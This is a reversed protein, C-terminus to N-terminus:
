AITHTFVRYLSLSPPLQMDPIPFSVFSMGVKEALAAEDSLGLTLEEGQELLSVIQAVGASALSTLQRELLDGPEPM